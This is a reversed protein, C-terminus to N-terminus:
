ASKERLKFEPIGQKRLYINCDEISDKYHFTYLYRFAGDQKTRKVKVGAKSVLDESLWPHLHMGICLATVTRLTKEKDEKQRYQKITSVSVWSEQALLEETYGKREMHSRLTGSFSGPLNNLIDNLRDIESGIKDSEDEIEADSQHGQAAKGAEIFDSSSLILDLTCRIKCDKEQQKGSTYRVGICCAALNRKGNRTLHHTKPTIFQPLNVTLYQDVRRIVDMDMLVALKPESYYLELVESDSLEYKVDYNTTQRRPMRTKGQTM